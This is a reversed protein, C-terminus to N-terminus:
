PSPQTKQPKRVHKPSRWFVKFRGWNHNNEGHPAPPANFPHCYPHSGSVSVNQVSSRRYPVSDERTTRVRYEVVEACREKGPPLRGSGSLGTRWWQSSCREGGDVATAAGGLGWRRMDECTDRRASPQRQLSHRGLAAPSTLPAEGTHHFM